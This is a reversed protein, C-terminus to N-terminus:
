HCYKQKKNIIEIALLDIYNGNTALSTLKFTLSSHIFVCIGVGRGHKRGQNIQTYNEVDFLTENRPDDM